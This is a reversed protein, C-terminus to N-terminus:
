EKINRKLYSSVNMIEIKVNQIIINQIRCRGSKKLKLIPIEDENFCDKFSERGAKRDENNNIINKGLQM